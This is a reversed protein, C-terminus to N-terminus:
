SLDPVGVGASPVNDLSILFVEGAGPVNYFSTPSVKLLVRFM